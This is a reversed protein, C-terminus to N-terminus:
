AAIPIINKLMGRHVEQEGHRTLLELLKKRILIGPRDSEMSFEVGRRRFDILADADLEEPLFPKLGIPM